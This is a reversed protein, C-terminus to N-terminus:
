GDAGACNEGRGEAEAVAAEERGDEAGPAAGGRWGEGRECGGVAWLGAATASCADEGGGWDAGGCGGLEDRAVLAGGCGAGVGRGDVM